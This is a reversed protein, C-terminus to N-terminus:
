GPSQLGGPEGDLTLFHQHQEVRREVRAREAGAHHLQDGVEDWAAAANGILLGGGPQCVEVVQARTLLVEERHVSVQEEGAAEVWRATVGAGASIGTVTVTGAM